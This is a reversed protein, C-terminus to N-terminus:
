PILGEHRLQCRYFRITSEDCDFREALPRAKAKPDQILAERIQTSRALRAARKEDADQAKPRIRPKSSTWRNHFKAPENAYGLFRRCLAGLLAETDDSDLIEKRGRLGRIAAARAGNNLPKAQTEAVNYRDPIKLKEHLRSFVSM